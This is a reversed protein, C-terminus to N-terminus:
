ILHFARALVSVCTSHFCVVDVVVITLSLNTHFAAVAAPAILPHSYVAAAINYIVLM